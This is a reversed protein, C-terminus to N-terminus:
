GERQYAVLRPTESLGSPREDGHLLNALTNAVRVEIENDGRRLLETVEVVHPPWLRVGATRGNVMPEVVDDGASAELFVRRGALGEPLAVTTRYVGLGSYFPHAQDTWSAPKLREVPQVIGYAGDDGRTVGFRGILKVPDTVGDTSSHLTLRVALVNRGERIHDTLEVTKMQSDFPSRIPPTTVEEGNLYLARDSGAFGDVVLQVTSPVHDAAFSLRYWVSIPWPRRPESPLQYAWAGPVVPQWGRDDVDLGAYLEEARDPEEPAARWQALVLANADEAEFAWEGDLAIAEVPQGLAAAAARGGRPAAPVVFTSGVPGLELDFETRGDVLRSATGSEEGVSPDWLVVDVDGDV